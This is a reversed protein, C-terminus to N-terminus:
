KPMPTDTSPSPGEASTTATGIQIRERKLANAEISTRAVFYEAQKFVIRDLM